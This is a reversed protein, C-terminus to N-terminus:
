RGACRFGMNRHATEPTAWLRNPPRLDRAVNYFSGGKLLRKAADEEYADEVWEWVNGLMDYLGYANAGKQAVEHARDESNGDYWAVDELAAGSKAAFEWEAESPLRMGVSACYRRAAHWSVNAAPLNGGDDAYAAATVETRGIWFGQVTVEHAPPEWAFCESDDEACGRLFSGPEIWVYALGDVVRATPGGQAWLVMVGLTLLAATRM